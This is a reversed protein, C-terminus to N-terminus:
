GLLPKKIYILVWTPKGERKFILEAETPSVIVRGHKVKGHLFYKVKLERLLFPHAFFFVKGIIKIERFKSTGQENLYELFIGRKTIIDNDAEIVVLHYQSEGMKIEKDLEPNSWPIIPFYDPTIPNERLKWGLKLFANIVEKSAERMGIRLPHIPDQITDHQGSDFKQFLEYISIGKTNAYQYLGDNMHAFIFKDPQGYQLIKDQLADQYRFANGFYYTAKYQDEELTKAPLSHYTKIFQDLNNRLKHYGNTFEQRMVHEGAVSEALFLINFNYQNALSIIQDAIQLYRSLPVRECVGKGFSVCGTLWALPYQRIHRILMYKLWYFWGEINAGPTSDNVGFAWVVTKPRCGAKIYRELIRIGSESTTSSISFNYVQKCDINQEIIAPFTDARRNREGWMVSGGFVFIDSDYPSRNKNYYRFGERNYQDGLYEDPREECSDFLKIEIQGKKGTLGFYSLHTLFFRTHDNEKRSKIVNSGLGYHCLQNALCLFIFVAICFLFTAFLCFFLKKM